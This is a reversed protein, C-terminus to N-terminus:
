IGDGSRMRRRTEPLGCISSELREAFVDLMADIRLDDVSAARAILQAASRMADRLTELEALRGGDLYFGHEIWSPLSQVRSM